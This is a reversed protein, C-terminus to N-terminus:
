SNQISNFLEEFAQRSQSDIDVYVFIGSRGPILHNITQLNMTYFDSYPLSFYKLKIGELKKEKLNNLTDVVISLNNPCTARSQDLNHLDNIICYIKLLGEKIFKEYLSSYTRDNIFNILFNKNLEIHSPSLASIMHLRVEFELKKKTLLLYLDSIQDMLLHNLIRNSCAEYSPPMDLIIHLDKNMSQKEDDKKSCIINLNQEIIDKIILYITNEFLDVEVDGIDVKDPDVMCVNIKDYAADQEPYPAVKLTNVYNKNIFEKSDLLAENLFCIKNDVLDSNQNIVEYYSKYNSYWSSGYWDLDIIYSLQNEKNQYYDAAMLAYTSKGCGGKISNIVDFIVKGM